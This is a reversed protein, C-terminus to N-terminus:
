MGIYAVGQLDDRQFMACIGGEDPAVHIFSYEVDDQLNFATTLFIMQDIGVMVVTFVM